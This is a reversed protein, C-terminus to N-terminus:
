KLKLRFNDTEAKMESDQWTNNAELTTIEGKMAGMWKPYNKAEEYDALEKIKSIKSLFCRYQKSLNNYSIYNSLPYLSKNTLNNQSNGTSISFVYDKHWSPPKVNRSSRRPLSVINNDSVYNDYQELSDNSNILAHIESNVVIPIEFNDLSIFDQLVINLNNSIWM